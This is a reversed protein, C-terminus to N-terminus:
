KAYHCHNGWHLIYHITFKLKLIGYLIYMYYWDTDIYLSLIIYSVANISMLLVFLIAEINSYTM